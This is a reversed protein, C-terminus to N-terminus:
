DLGSRCKAHQWTFCTPCRWFENPRSEIDSEHFGETCRPCLLTHHRREHDMKLANVRRFFAEPDAKIWDYAGPSGMLFPLEGRDAFHQAANEYEACYESPLPARQPQEIGEVKAIATQLLDVAGRDACNHDKFVALSLKAATLLLDRQAILDESVALLDRREADLTALKLKQNM